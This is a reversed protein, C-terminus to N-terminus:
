WGLFLNGNVGGGTRMGRNVARRFGPTPLFPSDHQRSGSFSAAGWSLGGLVELTAGASLWVFRDIPFRPSARDLHVSLRREPSLLRLLNGRFIDRWRHESEMIEFVVALINWFSM